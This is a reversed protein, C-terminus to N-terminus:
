EKRFPEEGSGGLHGHAGGFWDWRHAWMGAQSLGDRCGQSVVTRSLLGSGAGGVAPPSIGWGPSSNMGLSTDTGWASVVWCGPGWPARVVGPAVVM